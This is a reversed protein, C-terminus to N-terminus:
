RLQEIEHALSSNPVAVYSDVEALRRDIDRMTERVEHTSTTRAPSVPEVRDYAHVPETRAVWGAVGYAILTWPFGGVVTLVVMGVRVLTVDIGFYNAIGACVGMLKGERKDLMFTKRTM